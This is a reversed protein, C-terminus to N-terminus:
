PYAIEFKYQSASSVEDGGVVLRYAGGRDLTINVTTVCHLCDSWAEAGTSDLLKIPVPVFSYPADTITLAITEGADASFVFINTAGPSQFYGTVTEGIQIPQEVPPEINWIKIAYPGSGINRDDGVTLTYTGGQTLTQAGPDTCQLCSSFIEVGNSDELQWKILENTEPASVAEFYVHQGPDAQFTYIDKAGPGEIYGAGNDPDDRSATDGIALDFEQPPEVRWIKLHYRGSNKDTESGVILTYEGGSELSVVGVDGCQLCSNFIEAGSEDELSLNMIDGDPRSITQIFVLQGPEATFTYLDLAGPQPIIGAGLGPNDPSIESGITTEFRDPEANGLAPKTPPASDGPTPNETAAAVPTSLFPLLALGGFASFLGCACVALGLVIGIIILATSDSKAVPTAPYTPLTPTRVPAVSASTHAPQSTLTEAERLAAKWGNLFDQCSAYRDERNKALAKLLVREVAPPVDPKVESPLPLTAQLQKLLVALPTEADFPVRGTVMEYLVIGLAYVDSRTDLKEGQAQEPSMYAPTGTIAGTATFQAAGEILKAIGFDTLFVDGRSDLLVNSPKLDRHIIGCAHAHGLADALQSFLRDIVFLTLPGSELKAKLDGSELLRMVFYTIGNSEGFDYVPLIHPHELNAILRAEQQFRALSEPSKTYHGPLVKVAVYRDMVAHYAKYVTAMGGEGIQNIIKYPGLQTNPSLSDM